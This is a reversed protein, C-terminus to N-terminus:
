RVTACAMAGDGRHGRDPRTRRGGPGRRHGPRCPGGGTGGRGPQLGPDHDPGPPDPGGLAAPRPEQGAAAGRGGHRGRDVGREMGRPRRRAGGGTRPPRRARRGAPRGARRGHAGPLPCGVPDGHPRGGRVHAGAAAALRRRGPGDRLGGRDRRRGAAGPRGRPVRGPPPLHVAGARRPLAPVRLAPAGQGQVGPRRRGLGRRCRGRHPGRRRRVRRRHHLVRQGAGSQVLVTAGRHFLERVGDPTIAVRNENDKIETPVGVTLPM